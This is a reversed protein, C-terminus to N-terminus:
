TTITGTPDTFTNPEIAQLSTDLCYTAIPLFEGKVFDRGRLIIHNEYVEVLYGESGEEYYDLKGNNDADIDLRPKTISPIHVSWYGASKDINAYTCNKSQIDYRFHSHGHFWIVNRYHQMLSEFVKPQTTHSWCYNYYLGFPNGCVATNGAGNFVHQFVFCRKNRNAELTEYLWQLENDTATNVFLEGESKIGLMIFVDSVNDGYSIPNRSVDKDVCKGNADIGLSYYLPMGTYNEIIDVISISGQTADNVRYSEHNGTIAYVPKSSSSDVSEKYITLQEDFGNDTLDGCVCVFSANNNFYKLANILDSASSSNTTIHVDSISGFSYHKSGVDPQTLKNLDFASLLKGKANHIGIRVADKTAINQPIFDSYRVTIM